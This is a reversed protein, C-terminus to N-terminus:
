VVVLECSEKVDDVNALIYGHERRVVEVNGKCNRDVLETLSFNITM